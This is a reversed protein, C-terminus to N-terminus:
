YSFRWYLWVIIYKYYVSIIDSIKRMQIKVPRLRCFKKKAPKNHVVMNDIGLKRKQKKMRRNIKIVTWEEYSNYKFIISELLLIMIYFIKLHYEGKLNM